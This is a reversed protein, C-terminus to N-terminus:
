EENLMTKALIVKSFHEISTRGHAATEGFVHHLDLGSEYIELVM